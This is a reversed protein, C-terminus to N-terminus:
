AFAGQKKDLASQGPRPDGFLEATIDREAAMRRDREEMRSPPVYIRPTVNTFIERSPRRMYEIKAHVVRVPVGMIPAIDRAIKGEDLLRKLTAVDADSWRRRTSFRRRSQAPVLNRYRNSCAEVTRGVRDAIDKWSCEANRMTVITEDQQPLWRDKRRAAADETM